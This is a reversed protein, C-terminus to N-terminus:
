WAFRFPQVISLLSNSNLTDGATLSTKFVCGPLPPLANFREGVDSSPEDYDAQESSGSATGEISIEQTEHLDNVQLEM